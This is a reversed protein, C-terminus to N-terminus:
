RRLAESADSNYIIFEHVARLEQEAMERQEWAGELVEGNNSEPEDPDWLKMHGPYTSLHESMFGLAEANLYGTAISAEPKARNRVYKKLVYLYREAGYCWRSHVPGLWDLEDVLHLLLHPMVDFFAPPFWVELICMTEVVYQQLAEMNGPDLAKACIKKFCNGLRVVADRVGPHLLGRISAPLIDQLIVHHDHSKLGQLNKESVHKTMNSSYGTPVKISRISRLFQAAESTNLVYPAHPKFYNGRGPRPQLHLSPKIGVAEMDKRVSITDKDGLLFGLISASVNKEVHMVDITHRIRHGQM